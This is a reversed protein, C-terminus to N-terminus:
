STTRRQAGISRLPVRAEILVRPRSPSLYMSSSPPVRRRARPARDAALDRRRGPAPCRSAGRPCRRGGSRGRRSRWTAALADEAAGLLALAEEARDRGVALLALLEAVAEVVREVGEVGDEVFTSLPWPSTPRSRMSSFYPLSVLSDSPRRSGTPGTAARCSRRPRACRCPRSGPAARPGPPCSSSRRARPCGRGSPRPASARLRGLVELLAVARM